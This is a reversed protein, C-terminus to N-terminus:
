FRFKEILTPNPGDLDIALRSKEDLWAGEDTISIVKSTHAVEQRSIGAPDRPIWLKPAPTMVSPPYYADRAVNDPYVPDPMDAPVM